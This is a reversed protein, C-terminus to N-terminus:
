FEPNCPRSLTSDHAGHKKQVCLGSAKGSFGARNAAGVLRLLTQRVHGAGDHALVQGLLGNGSMGWVRETSILLVRNFRTSKKEGKCGDATHAGVKAGSETM